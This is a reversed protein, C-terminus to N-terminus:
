KRSKEQYRVLSLLFRVWDFPVSSDVDAVGLLDEQTCIHYPYFAPLHCVCTTNSKPGFEPQGNSCQLQNCYLGPQNFCCYCPQGRQRETFCQTMFQQCNRGNDSFQRCDNSPTAYRASTCIGNVRWLQQMALKCFAIHSAYTLISAQTANMNAADKVRRVLVKGQLM